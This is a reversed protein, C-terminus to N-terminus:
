PDEAVFLIPRFHHDASWFALFLVLGRLFECSNRGFHDTFVRCLQIAATKISGLYRSRKLRVKGWRITKSGRLGSQYLPFLLLFEAVQDPLMSHDLRIKLSRLDHFAYDPGRFSSSHVRRLKGQPNRTPIRIPRIHGCLNGETQFTKVTRVIALLRARRVRLQM